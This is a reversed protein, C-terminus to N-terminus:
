NIIGVLYAIPDLQLLQFMISLNLRHIWPDDKDKDQTNVTLVDLLHIPSDWQLSSDTFEFALFNLHIRGQHGPETSPRQLLALTAVM